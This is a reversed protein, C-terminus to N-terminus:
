VITIKKPDPVFLFQHFNTFIEASFLNSGVLHALITAFMDDLRIWNILCIMLYSDTLNQFILLHVMSVEDIVLTKCGVWRKNSRRSGLVIEKLKIIGDEGKGTGAFSHVTM